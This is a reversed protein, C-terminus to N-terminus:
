SPKSMQALNRNPELRAATIYGTVTQDITKLAQRLPPPAQAQDAAIMVRHRPLRDAWVGGLLVFAVLPFTAAALVIGVYTPSGIDTVYLALAVWVVQDGITSASQGLFLLRFNRERLVGM